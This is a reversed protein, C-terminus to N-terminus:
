KPDDQNSKKSAKKVKRKPGIELLSELADLIHAEPKAPVLLCAKKVTICQIEVGFKKEVSMIKSTQRANETWSNFIDLSASLLHQREFYGVVIEKIEDKMVDYNSCSSDLKNYEIFRNIDIITFRFKGVFGIEINNNQFVVPFLSLNEKIQGTSFKVPVGTSTEKVRSIGPIVFTRGLVCLSRTSKFKKVGWSNLYWFREYIVYSSGDMYYFHSWVYYALAWIVCACFTVAIFTEVFTM